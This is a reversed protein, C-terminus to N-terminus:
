KATGLINLIQKLVGYEFVRKPIKIDEIKNKV